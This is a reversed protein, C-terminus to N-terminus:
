KVVVRDIKTKEILDWDYDVGLGPSQSVEVMGDSNICDLEDSYGNRYIPLQWPNPAAPHVLNVEYYNSRSLAAMLQRMAPGCSHVEVDIGMAEAAIAAKYCGTIGGDYDPDVRGFDTAGSIMLDTHTEVTRVHEGIMIPTRVKQKLLKHGSFSLGGDAYPDEYWLLDYEDCVQGVRIADTLTKLYCSADYMVEMKGGVREAVARIMKSERKPDGAKWGHMKFGPYGLDLCSEAFDAYAEPHSLGGQQEDGHITSAYAPLHWRHGGLMQAISLGCCKGALDWLAIDLSGIGAEGVHKTLRRMTQYHRERELAPKNLLAHALAVGASMLVTARSRPPIYEGVVGDDTFIRVGFRKQPTGVGPEYWVGFGSPDAAINPISVEFLTFEIAQIRPSKM